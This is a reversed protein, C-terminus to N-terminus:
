EDLEFISEFKVASICYADTGDDNNYVLYDGSQYHSKGEKTVVSGPQAAVEAWIPTTKVYIGPNVNRYTKAFVEGDVSYIDGENDIVWDGKKCRQEAGWKRYNFGETDLDFQVAVVFQDAKKRYRRRNGMTEVM